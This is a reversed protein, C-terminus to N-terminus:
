ELEGQEEQIEGVIGAIKSYVSVLEILVPLKIDIMQKNENQLLFQIIEKETSYFGNKYCQKSIYLELGMEKCDKKVENTETNIKDMKMQMSLIEKRIEILESFIDTNDPKYEQEKVETTKNEM